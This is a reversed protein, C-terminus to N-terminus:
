CRYRVIVTPRGVRRFQEVEPNAEAYRVLGKSDWTVCGRRFIAQVGGRRASKGIRLVEEKLASELEAVERNAEDLQQASRAEVAALEAEVSRLVEAREADRRDRVARAAQKAADLRDLTRQVDDDASRPAVFPGPSCAAAPAGLACALRHELLKAWSREFPTQPTAEGRAAQLFHSQEPTTSLIAGTALAELWRGYRRLAAQEEETFSGPSPVVFDHQQLWAAHETPVPM